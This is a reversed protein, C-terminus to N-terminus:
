PLHLCDVWYSALLIAVGASLLTASNMNRLFIGEPTNSTFSRRVPTLILWGITQSNSQLTIAGNLMRNSIKDGIENTENSYVIIQDTGVLTLPSSKLFHIICGM